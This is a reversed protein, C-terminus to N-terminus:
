KYRRRALVQAPALFAAWAPFAVWSEVHPVLGFMELFGWVTALALLGGTAWLAAEAQVSREFEDTEEKLYLGMVLIAGMLPLAPLIALVYAAVGEPHMAMWAEIAGILALVYATMAIMLRLRYRTGAASPRLKMARQGVRALWAAIGLIAVAYALTAITEAIRGAHTENLYRVTYSFALAAGGIAVVGLVATLAVARATSPPSEEHTSM